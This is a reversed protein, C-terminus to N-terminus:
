AADPVDAPAEPESARPSKAFRTGLSERLGELGQNRGAVKLLAYGQLATVMVDSGLAMQTDAARESLRALRLMRPRLRDLALMDAQADALPMSPPVVQPNQDLLSLTQRCFVESKDGMKILTRRQTKNLAVLGTLQAEIQGLAQDVIHLQEDTLTLSILNQSM